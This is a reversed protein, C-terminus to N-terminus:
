GVGFATLGVAPPAHSEKSATKIRGVEAM